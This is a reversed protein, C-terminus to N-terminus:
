KFLIIVNDQLECPNFDSICVNIKVTLTKEVRHLKQFYM